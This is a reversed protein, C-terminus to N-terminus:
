GADDESEVAAYGLLDADRGGGGAVVTDDLTPVILGAACIKSMANHGKRHCRSCPQVRSASKMRFSRLNRSSKLRLLKNAKKRNGKYTHHDLMWSKLQSIEM